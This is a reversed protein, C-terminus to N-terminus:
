SVSGLGGDDNNITSHEARRLALSRLEPTRWPRVPRNVALVIEQKAESAPDLVIEVAKEM